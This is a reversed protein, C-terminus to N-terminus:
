PSTAAASSRGFRLDLRRAIPKFGPLGRENIGRTLLTLNPHSELAEPEIRCKNFAVNPRFGLDILPGRTELWGLKHSLRDARRIRDEM